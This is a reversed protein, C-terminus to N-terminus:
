MRWSQWASAEVDVHVSDHHEHEHTEGEGSASSQLASLSPQSRSPSHWLGQCRGCRSVINALPVRSAEAPSLFLLM